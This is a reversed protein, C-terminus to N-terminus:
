VVVRNRGERKATYLSADTVRLLEDLTEGHHPWHALGASLTVTHSGDRTEIPTAALQTCIDRLRTGAEEITATPLILLFEEGGIRFAADTQRLNQVLHRAVGKLVDDGVLHGFSDNINKFHDLDILALPLSNGLRQARAVEVKFYELLYRRNYLGTLPDRLAQESLEEHLRTITRLQEESLALARTLKQESLHHQTVDRLYLAQGLLASGQGADSRITHVHVDFYRAPHGLILQGGPQESEMDTTSQTVLKHLLAGYEPWDLLDLGMWGNQLHALKRAAPNSEVVRQRPDIVLVPDPLADLLLNHAIPLLDFLRQGLILWAVGVLLFAFSFPTPDFGFIKWAFAMYGINTIWPVIMLLVFALYHRKHLGTSHVAANVVLILSLLLFVYAYATAVFYAPGHDYIIPSGPINSVPGTGLAYFLHHWPNSVALACLLVPAIALMILRSRPLPTYINNVYQWMFVIGASPMALVGAWAMGSWFIQTAPLPAGMEIVDCGLWWLCAIHMSVFSDRGPFARHNRIWLALLAIGFFVIGAGMASNTLRWTTLAGGLMLVSSWGVQM